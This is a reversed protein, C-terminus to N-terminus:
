KFKNSYFRWIHRFNQRIIKIFYIHLFKSRIFVMLLRKKMSDFIPDIVRSLFKPLKPWMSLSNQASRQATKRTSFPGGLLFYPGFFQLSTSFLAGVECFQASKTKPLKRTGLHDMKSASKKGQYSEDLEKSRTRARSWM